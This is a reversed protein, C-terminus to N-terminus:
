FPRPFSHLPSGPAVRAVFRVASGTQEKVLGVVPLIQERSMRFRYHGGFGRGGSGLRRREVRSGVMKGHWHRCYAVKPFVAICIRVFWRSLYLVSKRAAVSTGGWCGGPM